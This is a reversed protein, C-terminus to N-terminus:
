GAITGPMPSVVSVEGDPPSFSGRAKALRHTREDAVEVPYLEGRILVEWRGDGEHVVAELSHHNLLLSPDTDLASYEYYLM